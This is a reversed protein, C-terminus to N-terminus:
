MVGARCLRPVLVSTLPNQPYFAPLNQPSALLFRMKKQVTSAHRWYRKCEEEGKRDGKRGEERMKKGEGGKEKGNRGEREREEGRRM